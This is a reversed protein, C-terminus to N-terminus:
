RPLTFTIGPWEAALLYEAAFRPSGNAEDMGVWVSRGPLRWYGFGGPPHHAELSPPTTLAVRVVPQATSPCPRAVRGTGGCRPCGAHAAAPDYAARMARCFERSYKPHDPEPCPDSQGPSWALSDAHALWVDAPCEVGSVFGRSWALCQPRDCLPSPGAWREWNPSALLERGRKVLRCRICWETKTGDCDTGLVVACGGGRIREAECQVRIFAARDPDGTEELHDAYALRPTDDDPFEIVARLLDADTV